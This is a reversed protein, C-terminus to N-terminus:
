VVRGAPCHLFQYQSVLVVGERSIPVMLPVMTHYVAEDVLDGVSVEVEVAPTDAAGEECRANDQLDSGARSTPVAAKSRVAIAGGEVEGVLEDVEGVGVAAVVAVDVM